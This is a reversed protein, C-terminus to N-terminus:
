AADGRCNCRCSRRRWAVRVSDPLQWRGYLGCARLHDAAAQWSRIEAGWDNPHDGPSDGLGRFARDVRARHRQSWSAAARRTRLPVSPATDATDQTRRAPREVSRQPVGAVGDDPPRPDKM